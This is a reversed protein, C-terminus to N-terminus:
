TAEEDKEFNRLPSKIPNINKTLFIVWLGCNICVLSNHAM